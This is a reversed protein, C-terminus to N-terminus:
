TYYIEKKSADGPRVIQLGGADGSDMSEMMAEIGTKAGGGIGTVADGDKKPDWVQGHMAMYRAAEENMAQKVVSAQNKMVSFLGMYDGAETRKRIEEQLVVQQEKTYRAQFEKMHATRAKNLAENRVQLKKQHLNLADEASVADSSASSSNSSSGLLKTESISAAAAIAPGVIEETTNANAHGALLAM